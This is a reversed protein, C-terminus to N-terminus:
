QGQELRFKLVQVARSSVPRGDVERPRFRWHRVAELAAQEFVGKPEAGLVVADTVRGGATVRFALKVWGQIGQRAAQYPYSPAPQAIPVLDSVLRPPPLDLTGPGALGPLAALRPVPLRPLTIADPRPPTTPLDLPPMPRVRPPPPPTQRQKRRPPAPPTPRRIFDVAQLRDPRATAVEEPTVMRQMLWLLVLAGGIGTVLALLVRV